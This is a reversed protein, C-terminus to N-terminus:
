AGIYSAWATMLERRKEVSKGRRYAREAKSGIVHALAMEADERPFQTKEGVWDRFTSRFGHVTIDGHDMRRLVATMAMNSLSSGKGNNFVKAGAVPDAPRLSKLVSLAADSLPVQHAQGAKMRDAPITWLEANWDVEAWTMGFIEGSRAAALITFELARAANGKRDRLNRMFEPLAVFPLAAHHQEDKRAQRPLLLELHGKLAAPNDGSRLGNVKAAALIREIRGRLRRATEPKELWIDKLVSVVDSECVEAIHKHLIPTAYTEITSRWQKRHKDNRFGGEISSIFERAYTGFTTPAQATLTDPRVAFRVDGGELYATRLATAKERARALPVDMASGLGFERRKGEVVRVFIWSRTGSPRVRLYLGGGDSYVNPETLGAIQRVNLKNRTRM